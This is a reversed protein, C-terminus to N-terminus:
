PGCYFFVQAVKNHLGLSKVYMKVEEIRGGPEVLTVYIGRIGVQIYSVSNITKWM